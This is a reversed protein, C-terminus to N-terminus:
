FLKGIGFELMAGTQHISYLRGPSSDIDYEEEDISGDGDTGGIWSTAQAM